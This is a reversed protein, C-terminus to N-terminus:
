CDKMVVASQVELCRERHGVVSIQFQIVERGRICELAKAIARKGRDLKQVSVDESSLMMRDM